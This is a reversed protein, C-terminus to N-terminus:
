RLLAKGDPVRVLTRTTMSRSVRVAISASPREISDIARSVPRAADVTAYQTFL